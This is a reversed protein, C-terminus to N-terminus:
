RLEALAAVEAELAEREADIGAAGELDELLAERRVAARSVRVLQEVTRAVDPDVRDVLRRDLRREVRARLVDIAREVRRRVASPLELDALRRHAVVARLLRWRLPGRARDALKRLAFTRAPDAPVLWPVSALLAAVVVAVTWLSTELGANARAVWSAAVGSTFALGLHFSLERWTRSRMARTGFVFTLLLGSALLPLYARMGEYALAGGAGMAVAESALAPGGHALLALAVSSLVTVAVGLVPSVVELQGLVALVLGAVGVFIWARGHM